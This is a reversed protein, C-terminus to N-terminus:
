LSYMHVKTTNECSGLVPFSEDIIGLDKCADKSLLLQSLGKAVYCTQSTEKTRGHENTGRITVFLVGVIDIGSANAAKLNLDPPLLDKQNLGLSNPQKLGMCTVQCGTLM